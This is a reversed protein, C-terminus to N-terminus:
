FFDAGITSQHVEEIRHAVITAKAPIINRRAM